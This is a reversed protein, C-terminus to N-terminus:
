APPTIGTVLLLIYVILRNAQYCPRWGGGGGVRAINCREGVRRGCRRVFFVSVGM